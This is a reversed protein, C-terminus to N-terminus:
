LQLGGAIRDAPMAGSVREVEAGGRFLIMTPVSGIRFRAAVAQLSETDVKAVIVQDSKGRALKELEPALMKCPGCWAAWFDVLVPMPSGHILEEFDDESRVAFPRDGLPIECKGCIPQEALRTALVRNLTACSPCAIIM